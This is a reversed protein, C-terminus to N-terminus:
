KSANRSAPNHVSFRHAKSIFSPATPICFWAGVLQWSNNIAGDGQAVANIGWNHKCLIQINNERTGKVYPLDTFLDNNQKKLEVTVFVDHGRLKEETMTRILDEGDNGSVLVTMPLSDDIQSPDGSMVFLESPKSNIVIIADAHNRYNATKEQFSCSGRRVMQVQKLQPPPSNPAKCGIEDDDPPPLLNGISFTGGTKRLSQLTTRGFFGPSCPVTLIDVLSDQMEEHLVIARQLAIECHFSSENNDSVVVYRSTFDRGNEIEEPLDVPFHSKIDVPSSWSSLSSEKRKSTVAKTLPQPPTYPPVTLVTLITMSTDGGIGRDSFISVELLEESNIHRRVLFFPPM